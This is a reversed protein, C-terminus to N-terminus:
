EEIVEIAIEPCNSQALWAKDNLGAPVSGDGREHANGFEDFDFLEPALSKCRAHGQCREGDVRIKLKGSMALAERRAREKSRV